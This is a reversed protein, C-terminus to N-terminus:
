LKTKAELVLNNLEEQSKVNYKIAELAIRTHTNTHKNSYKKLNNNIKYKDYVIGVFVNLVEKTLIELMLYEGTYGGNENYIYLKVPGKPTLYPSNTSTLIKSQYNCTIKQFELYLDSKINKSLMVNLENIIEKKIDNQYKNIIGEVNKKYEDTSSIM